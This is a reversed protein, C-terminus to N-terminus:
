GTRARGTSLDASMRPGGPGRATRMFRGRRLERSRWPGHLGLPGGLHVVVTDPRVVGRPEFEFSARGARDDLSGLVEVLALAPEGAVALVALPQRGPAGILTAAPVRIDAGVHSRDVSAALASLSLTECVKIRVPLASRTTGPASGKATEDSGVLGLVGPQHALFKGPHRLATLLTVSTRVARPDVRHLGHSAPGSAV